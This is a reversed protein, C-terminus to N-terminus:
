MALGVKLPCLFLNQRKISDQHFDVQLTVNCLLSLFFHIAIKAM